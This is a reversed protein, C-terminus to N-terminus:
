HFLHLLSQNVSIDIIKDEKYFKMFSESSIKILDSNIMERCLINQFTNDGLKSIFINFYHHLNKQESYVKMWVHLKTLHRISEICSEIYFTTDHDSIDIYSEIIHFIESLETYDSIFNNIYKLLTDPNTQCRNYLVIKDCFLNNINVSVNKKFPISTRIGVYLTLAFSFVIDSLLMYEALKREPLINYHLIPM